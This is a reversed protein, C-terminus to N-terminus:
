KSRWLLGGGAIVVGDKPVPVCYAEVVRQTQRRAIDRAELCDKIDDFGVIAFGFILLAYSM